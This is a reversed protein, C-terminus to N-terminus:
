TESRQHKRCKSKYNNWSFRFEDVTQGVYQRKCCNCTLLYILCKGNCNFKHNINYTEGTILSTFTSIENVNLCVECRKSGCKFSGKPREEPYLKARVLYSGM